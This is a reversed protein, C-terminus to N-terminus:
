IHDCKGFKHVVNLLNFDTFYRLELIYTFIIVLGHMLTSFEHNRRPEM